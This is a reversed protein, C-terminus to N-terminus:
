FGKAPEASNPSLSELLQNCFRAVENTFQSTALEQAPAPSPGALLETLDRSLRQGASEGAVGPRQALAPAPCGCSERPVFTTKVTYEGPPVDEGKVMDIVLRAAMEGLSGFDQRVTALPPSVRSAFDRDDFGVVAMQSPLSVGADTLARVVGAAIMDTAAVVATCPLGARLMANGIADGGDEPGVFLLTPDAELGHERLAQVYVEYRETTDDCRGEVLNGAFAVRSHGHSVLHAVAETIGSRNDPLVQPCKFGPLQHSIMVVPKGQARIEELYPESAADLVTIFADVQDWALHGGAQAPLWPYTGDTRGDRTQVAVVRGGCTAAQRAVGRLVQGYYAGALLPSLVAIRM